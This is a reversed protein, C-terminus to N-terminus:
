ALVRQKFFCLFISRPKGDNALEFDFHSTVSYGIGPTLIRDKAPVADIKKFVSSNEYLSSFRRWPARTSPLSPLRCGPSSRRSSGGSASCVCALSGMSFGPGGHASALPEQVGFWVMMITALALVIHVGEQQIQCRQRGDFPRCDSFKTMRADRSVSRTFSRVLRSIPSWVRVRRFVRNARCM